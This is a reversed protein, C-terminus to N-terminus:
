NIKIKKEEFSLDNYKRNYGDIFCLEGEWYILRDGGYKMLVVFMLEFIKYNLFSIYIRNKKM